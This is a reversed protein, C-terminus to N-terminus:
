LKAELMYPVLVKEAPNLGRRTDIGDPCRSHHGLYGLQLIVAIHRERASVLDLV